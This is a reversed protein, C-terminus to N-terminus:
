CAGRGLAGGVGDCSVRKTRVVVTEPAPLDPILSSKAPAPEVHKQAKAAKPRATRAM